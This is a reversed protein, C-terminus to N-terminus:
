FNNEHFSIILYPDLFGPMIRSGSAVLRAPFAFGYASLTTPINFISGRYLYILGYYDRRDNYCLTSTAPYSVYLDLFFALKPLRMMQAKPSVRTLSTM